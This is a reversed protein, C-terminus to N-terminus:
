QRRGSFRVASSKMKVRVISGIPRSIGRQELHLRPEVVEDGFFIGVLNRTNERLPTGTQQPRWHVCLRDRFGQRRIERTCRKAWGLRSDYTGTRRKFHALIRESVLYRQVM